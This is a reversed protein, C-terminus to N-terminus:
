YFKPAYPNDALQGRAIDLETRPNSAPVKPAHEIQGQQEVHPIAVAGKGHSVAHSNRDQRFEANPLVTAADGTLNMRGGGPTFSVGMEERQYYPNANRAATQVSSGKHVSAAPGAVENGAKGRQTPQARYEQTAHGGIGYHAAGGYSSSTQERATLPADYQATTHGGAAMEHGHAHGEYRSASERMTPNAGDMHQLTSGSAFTVNTADGCHERDTFRMDYVGDTRGGVQRSPNAVGQCLTADHDRTAARREEFGGPRAPGGASHSQERSTLKPEYLPRQSQGSYQSRSPAVDRDCVTYYREPRRNDQIHPLADRNPTVGKGAVVRGGFNNKKYGGVNNPLIRFTDHFGGTAPKSPDINLGPGVYQREVPAVGHMQNTVAPSYRDARNGQISLPAGNIHSLDKQPEFRNECERKHQFTVDSTGTFTEMRNQAFSDYNGPDGGYSRAAYFPTDVVNPNTARADNKYPHANKPPLPPARRVGGTGERPAKGNKSLEYGLVALGGLIIIEM